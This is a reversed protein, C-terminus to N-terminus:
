VTDPFFTTELDLYSVEAQVIWSGDDYATGLSYYHANTNKISLYPIIQNISPIGFNVGPSNLTNVLQQNPVDTVIQLFAYGARTTRSGSEFKLSGGAIPTELDVPEPFTSPIQNFAYGAFLKISLLDDNFYIKHNFDFGDFHYLALNSYFEHPPRMWPYAYGINRYDSLLFLDAGLRGIRINTTDNINWRLFARDLNQELFDGAHDRAVWQVAAHLSHKIDVDVQLGIRSDTTIGWSNRVNQTQTASRLFGLEDTDTGSFGFTGFGKISWRIEEEANVSSVIIILLFLFTYKNKM